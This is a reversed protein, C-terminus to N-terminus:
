SPSAIVQYGELWIRTLLFGSCLSGAAEQKGKFNSCKQSVATKQQELKNKRNKKMCERRLTGKGKGGLYEIMEEVGGRLFRLSTPLPGSPGM